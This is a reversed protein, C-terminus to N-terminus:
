GNGRQAHDDRVDEPDRAALHEGRQDGPLAVGLRQRLQGPAHHTGLDGRQLLRKGAEEGIVMREQELLHQGPDVRDVGIEGRQILPDLLHDGQVGRRGPAQGLDGADVGGGRACDQGLGGSVHAPEGGGAM